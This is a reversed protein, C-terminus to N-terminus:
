TKKKFKMQVITKKPSKRTREVNKVLLTYMHVSQNVPNCPFRPVKRCEMSEWSALSLWHVQSVKQLCIGLKNFKRYLSLLKHFKRYVSKRSKWSETFLSCGTFSKTFQNVFTEYLPHLHFDIEQDICVQLFACTPHLHFSTKAVIEQGICVM